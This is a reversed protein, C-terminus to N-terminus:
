DLTVDDLGITVIKESPLWIGGIRDYKSVDLCYSVESRSPQTQVTEYASHGYIQRVGNWLPEDNNDRWLIGGFKDRGGRTPGITDIFQEVERHVSSAGDFHFEDYSNLIGAIDEPDTIDMHEWHSHLGAHTLLFGDISQALKIKGQARLGQVKHVFDLSPALYGGFINDISLHCMIPRDHNGWLMLDIVGDELLKFCAEDNEPDIRDSGMHYRAFHGLDGLQIVTVEPRLREGAESMLGEQILLRKLLADQGQVDGILFSDSM